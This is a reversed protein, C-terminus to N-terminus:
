RLSKAPAKPQRRRLTASLSVSTPSTEPADCHIDADFAGSGSELGSLDIDRLNDDGAPTALWTSPPLLAAAIDVEQSTEQEWGTLIVCWVRLDNLWPWHEEGGAYCRLLDTSLCAESRAYLRWM